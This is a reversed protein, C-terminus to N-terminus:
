PQIPQSLYQKVEDVSHAVIVEHGKNRLQAHRFVQLKDSVKGPRKVEIWLVRKNPGAAIVDPYGDKNSIVLFVVNWNLDELHDRIDKKIESESKSKQTYSTQTNM